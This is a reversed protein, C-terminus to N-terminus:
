VDTTVGATEAVKTAYYESLYPEFPRGATMRREEYRCRILLRGERM